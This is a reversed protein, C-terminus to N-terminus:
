TNAGALKRGFISPFQKCFFNTKISQFCYKNSRVAIVEPSFEAVEDTVLIQNTFDTAVASAM